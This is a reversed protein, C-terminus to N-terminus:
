KCPKKPRKSRGGGDGGHRRRDGGRDGRGDGHRDRDSSLPGDIDRGRKGGGSDGSDEKGNM